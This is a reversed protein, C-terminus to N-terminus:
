RGGDLIGSNRSAVVVMMQQVLGPYQGRKQLVPLFRALAEGARQRLVETVDRRDPQGIWVLAMTAAPVAPDEPDLTAVTDLVDEVVKLTPEGISWAGSCYVWAVERRQHNPTEGCWRHVAEDLGGRIMMALLNGAREIPDWDIVSRSSWSELWALLAKTIKPRKMDPELTLGVEGLRDILRQEFGGTM